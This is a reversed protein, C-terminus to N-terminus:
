DTDSINYSTDKELPKDVKTEVEELDTDIKIVANAKDDKNKIQNQYIELFAGLIEEPNNFNSGEKHKFYEFKKCRKMHFLNKESDVLQFKNNLIFFQEINPMVMETQKISTNLTKVAESNTDNLNNANNEVQQSEDEVQVKNQFEILTIFEEKLKQLETM